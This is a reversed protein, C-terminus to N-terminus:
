EEPIFFYFSAGEDIKGEAWVQGGHKSIIKEVIALGVGTGEFEESSHLRQFVKFLKKAYTPDFGVGNDKVFFVLRGDKNVTGVEIVPEEQLGSYKVANSLLNIWVQRITNADAHVGPLSHITWNIKNGEATSKFEEVLQNVIDATSVYSKLIDKKGIRSFTLLDDILHGMKLTNAKVVSILRNAEEDLKSVYEEQIISTFGIIGRLPARLDHSVSYTFAEMEGNARQLEETREQVKEELSKNLRHIELEAEKRETIDWMNVVIANIAPDHFMNSFAAALWIYHGERHKYRFTLHFVKGPSQMVQNICEHFGDQDQEHIENYGKKALREENSYGTIRLASPSRYFQNLEKDFLSIIGENNEVLAKFKRESQLLENTREKVRKELESNLENLNEEMKKRATINRILALHGIINKNEDRLYSVTTLAYIMESARNHYIVEGQWFGNQQFKALVEDRSENPYVITLMDSMRQGVAEDSTWGYLKEAAHNWRTIRFELDTSIIPDQINAAISALFRLSEETNRKETIDRTIKAYGYLSQNRDYLATILIDAYFISGDKRVRWGQTENRGEKKATLLNRLPEGAAVDQETYFVSTSKGIIEESKYQKIKEAGENWSAVRGDTDLLFIAYDKISTVMLHFREEIKRLEEEAIKRNTIDRISASVLLGNQTHMPSLSIEVPLSGGDKKLARLEMGVGMPRTKPDAFFNNRNKLHGSRFEHPLLIEVPKGIVEEKSYGFLNEVQQNSLQIQGNADVVVTADPAADLLASFKQESLRQAKFDRRIRQLILIILVFTVALISYLIALLKKNSSKNDEQKFQLFKREQDQLVSCLYRIRDTYFMGRNTLVLNTAAQIGEKSRLDVISDSFAIRKAAYYAISDAIKLQIKNAISYERLVALEKKLNTVSYRIPLLYPEKGTILFGRAGTENDLVANLVHQFNEVKQRSTELAEFDRQVNYSQRISISVVVIIASAIVVLIASLINDTSFRM